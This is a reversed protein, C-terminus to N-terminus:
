ASSFSCTRLRPPRLRAKPARHGIITRFLGVLAKSTSVESELRSNTRTSSAMMVRLAPRQLHDTVLSGLEGAHRDQTPRLIPLDVSGVDRGSLRRLVAEDLAEFASKRSSHGLPRQKGVQRLRSASRRRSPHTCRGDGWEESSLKVGPSNALLRASSFVPRKAGFM